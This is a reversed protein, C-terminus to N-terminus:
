VRRLSSLWTCDITLIDAARPNRNKNLRAVARLKNLVVDRSWARSAVKLAEHRLTQDLKTKYGFQSLSGNERRADPRNPRYNVPRGIDCKTPIRVVLSAPKKKVM